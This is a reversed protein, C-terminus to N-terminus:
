LAGKKLRMVRSEKEVLYAAYLDPHDAKFSAIRFDSQKQAKWTLLELPKGKADVGDVIVEADGMASAILTKLRDEDADYVKLSQKAISFQKVLSRLEPTAQITKSPTSRAFVRAADAYDVPAPAVGETVCRWFAAEREILAAILKENRPVRYIRIDEHTGCFLAVDFRVYGKVAMYHQCQVLYSEPVQDTEPEGWLTADNAQFVNTTKAEVGIPEGTVKADLNAIMFPHDPHRANEAVRRVRLGTREAYRGLVAEELATGWMVAANESLDEPTVQGRKELYLQFPTKWPSLGLAAAADSGGLGTQREALWSERETITM